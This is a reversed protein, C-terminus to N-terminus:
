IANSYNHQLLASHMMLVTKWCLSKCLYVYYLFENPWGDSMSKLTTETAKNLDTNSMRTFLHAFSDVSWPMTAHLKSIIFFLLYQRIFHSSRNSLSTLFDKASLKKDENCLPRLHPADATLILQVEMQQEVIYISVVRHLIIVFLLVM